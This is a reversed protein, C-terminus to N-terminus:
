SKSLPLKIDSILSELLINDKFRYLQAPRGVGNSMCGIVPEILDQHQVQRRFNQKHLNRGVLAEVCQQLQLLTFQPPLLEYVVPRYKIKARLRSMATALVRRHDHAMALGTLSIDFDHVIKPAEAILGVEYLLEYRLLVNEESWEYPPQGWCLHFRNLRELRSTETDATNAWRRIFPLITEVIHHYRAHRTDEWPFYDYWDRWKATYSLVQEDVERVLGLYSVYLVPLGRENQRTADIFTYLQEVYGMPQATKKAVWVRVGAQLSRHIPLLPGNLLTQGNDVTLVRAQGHTVATLVAVLEVLGEVNDTNEPFSDMMNM